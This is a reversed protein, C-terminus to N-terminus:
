RVRFLQRGHVGDDATFFVGDATKGLLVPSAGSESGPNLEEVVDTGAPQGTSEWVQYDSGFTPSGVFFLRRGFPVLESQVTVERLLQTGRRTGDSSDIVCSFKTPALYSFYLSGDLWALQACFADGTGPVSLTSLDIVKTSDGRNGHTRYIGSPGLLYVGEPAVSAAAYAFSELEFTGGLTGDSRWTEGCSLCSSDDLSALLGNGFPVLKHFARQDHPPPALRLTGDATGDSTWLGQNLAIYLREGGSAMADVYCGPEHRITAFRGTGSGSADTRWLETRSDFCAVFWIENGVRELTVFTPQEASFDLRFTGAPSGDTRWLSGGPLALLAVEGFSAVALPNTAEGQGCEEQALDAVKEPASAGTPILWLRRQNRDCATFITGSLLQGLHEPSAGPPEVPITNLNAVLAASGPSGDSAWLECGHRQDCGSFFVLGGSFGLDGYGLHQGLTFQTLAYTGEPTGDSQWLQYRGSSDAVEFYSLGEHSLFSTNAQCLAGTCLERVMRTGTDSGDTRWLSWSNDRSVPFLVIGGLLGLANCAPVPCSSPGQSLTALPRASDPSGETTWLQVDGATPGAALYFARGTFQILPPSLLSFSAGGQLRAAPHTGARTGDSQWLELEGGARNQTLFFVEEGFAQLDAADQPISAVRRTGHATGDTVWLAATETEPQIFFTFRDGAAFEDYVLGELLPVGVAGRSAIAYLTASSSFDFALVVQGAQALGDATIQNGQLDVVADTRDAEADVRVFTCGDSLFTATKTVVASIGGACGPDDALYVTQGGLSVASTGAPTGDSRWLTYLTVAPGFEYNTYVLMYALRATAAAVYGGVASFEVPRASGPSLTYLATGDPNNTDPPQSNAVFFTRGPVNFYGTPDSAADVPGANLTTLRELQGAHGAASVVIGLVLASFGIWRM